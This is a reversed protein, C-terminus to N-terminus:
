AEKKLLTKKIKRLTHKLLSATYIKNNDEVKGWQFLRFNLTTIIKQQRANTSRADASAVSWEVILEPPM